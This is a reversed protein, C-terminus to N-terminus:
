PCLSSELGQFESAAVLLLVGTSTLNALTGPGPPLTATEVSTMMGRFSSEPSKPNSILM